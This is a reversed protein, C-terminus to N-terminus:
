DLNERELRKITAIGSGVACVLLFLLVVLHAWHAPELAVQIAALGGAGGFVILQTALRRENSLPVRYVFPAGVLLCLGFGGYLLWLLAKFVSVWGM